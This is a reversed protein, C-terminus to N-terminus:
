GQLRHKNERNTIGFEHQIEESQKQGAGSGTMADLWSFAASRICAEIPQM